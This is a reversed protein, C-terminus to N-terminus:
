QNNWPFGTALTLQGNVPFRRPFFKTSHLEGAQIATLAANLDSLDTMALWPASTREGARCCHATWIKVDSPLTALLEQTTARYEALSAGPLFAYLTTPYIFDGAFLQHTTADYLAVSSHTHGPVHIVRLTRGGLDMTTGPKVWETVRFTPPVLRDIMGLYEYRNPTFKGNTVDARTDPLDILAVSTFPAIGGTHDFHLHSPMVTVPLHTLSTVVGTIDRTGSGADFLLARRTGVILYAYNVQYYRPEGIAYTNADINQVAWYDDVMRGAALDPKAPDVITHPELWALLEAFLYPAFALALGALVVVTVAACGAVRRAQSV